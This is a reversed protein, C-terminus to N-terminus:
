YLKQFWHSYKKNKFTLVDDMIQSLRATVPGPAELERDEFLKVPSIKISTHCAFIEDASYIDEKQLNTEEM